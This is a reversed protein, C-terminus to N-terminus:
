SPWESKEGWRQGHSVSATIPVPLLKTDNMIVQLTHVADALDEDPVDLIIEDHVPAVMWDGLGAADLELLKLKFVAAAAGQIQYNVLAYEKGPDAYHHRGTIPCVAYGTGETNKRTMAENFVGRSYTEIGPYAANLQNNVYQMQGLSVGATVAQKAVGAGYIKAYMSNKTPQRRPDSKVLDPDGFINRAITVFFDEPLHFANILGPDRSFAALLRMEIQDFDCMLLTHGPRARICNRIVQAAPNNESKRPLNQLNPNDMSMRSTRAGLTNISPHILHQADCKTIYFHLYTSALKQLRRRRLVARALPHDIGELVEGDLSVAGSKTKKDFEHGADALIQVIAANSGPKVSYETKCWDDVEVCYRTFKDHYDTAYEVDVYAGNATMKRTVWQVATEIELAKPAQAEVLPLHHDCLRRTLVTDLAAYTWYGPYDYPVTAWTWGEKSFAVELDHQGASARPDVHRNAQVKLARSMHPELIHSMVGVDRIRRQDLEVGEKALFSWDFPANMMDIPGRHLKMAAEFLGGWRDWRMAWGTDADGVQVMRVYDGSHWYFGTGETDVAIPENRTARAWNLFDYVNGVDEVLYLKVNDLSM